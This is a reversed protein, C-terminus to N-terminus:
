HAIAASTFRIDHETNPSSYRRFLFGVYPLGGKPLAGEPVAFNAAQQPFPKRDCLIM